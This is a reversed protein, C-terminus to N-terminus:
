PGGEPPGNENGPATIRGAALTVTRDMGAAVSPRHSIVLTTRGVMFSGLSALVDRETEVDLNATAEDLVLIPADKIIARAIALRQREGGSLLLGNEGVRTEYGQPLAAITDHICALRCAEVIREDTVDADAVALNDRITANFLHVDQAVVGLMRRVDDARYDRLDHGGIRIEGAEYEWFRLLLNVLTTKGSGSPGIIAVSAGSDVSFTCGDLVPPEDPGYRFRVDRFEIASGDPIPHPDTGAPDVVEPTADTLEFLRRAAARNAEQLGFAQALPPIIEFSALAVLPLLALYIGDLRGVDTLQIGIALVTVAAMTALAAAMAATGARVHALAAMAGDTSRGLALVRERHDAARDLAVLDAIGGIEDVLLASLEARTAVLTSAPRRSLRRSALPLAVGTLALFALLALGLVPDFLGLALSAIATVLAAVVPPVIVRVYFDELTEIDGVIRALLDGSRRGALRAPALPEISAFFWVRLDALIAFTARHTVYRELYRFAARSIALVRVATIALAVEAVNSVLAAKSILYASMAMLAVNSGVALFGLLTGIAIWRRHAAMLGFLRRFTTM